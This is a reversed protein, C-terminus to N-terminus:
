LESNSLCLMDMVSIIFMAKVVCMIMDIMFTTVCFNRYWSDHQKHNLPGIYIDYISVIIYLLYVSIAGFSVLILLIRYKIYNQHTIIAWIYLLYRNAMNFSYVILSIWFQGLAIAISKVTNAMVCYNENSDMMFGSVRLAIILLILM